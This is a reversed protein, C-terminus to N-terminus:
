LLLDKYKNKLGLENENKKIDNLFWVHLNYGKERTASWKLQDKETALGKTELYYFENPNNEWVKFDILYNHHKGDAGFYKVRDRTYEWNYIKNHEKLKDLIICTRLEYTGQVKINKYKFWKVKGGGIKQNGNEYAKKQVESFKSNKYKGKIWSLKSSCSKSCCIQNKHKSDIKFEKLCFNCKNFYYKKENKYTGTYFEKSNKIPIKHIGDKMRKLISNRIKEKTNESLIRKKNSCTKNCFKKEHKLGDQTEFKKNCSPCTKEILKFMLPKPTYKVFHSTDINNDLIIKKIKKSIGGGSKKGLKIIIENINKSNAILKIIKENKNM